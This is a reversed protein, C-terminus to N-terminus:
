GNEGWVRVVAHDMTEQYVQNDEVVNAIGLLPYEYDDTTANKSSTWLESRFPKKDAIMQADVWIQGSVEWKTLRAPNFVNFHPISFVSALRVRWNDTSFPNMKDFTCGEIVLGKTSNLYLGKWYGTFECDQVTINDGYGFHVAESKNASGTNGTYTMVLNKLTVGTANTNYLVQYVDSEVKLNCLTAGAGISIKKSFVSNAAGDLTVGAPVTLEDNCTLGSALITQGPRAAALAEKVTGYTDGTTQNYVTPLIDNVYFGTAWVKVKKTEDIFTNDTLLENTLM